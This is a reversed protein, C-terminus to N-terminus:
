GVSPVTGPPHAHWATWLDAPGSGQGVDMAIDFLRAAAEPELTGQVCDTFKDRVAAEPLPRPLSGRPMAVTATISRGNVLRVVVEDPDNPDLTLDPTMASRGAVLCRRLLALVTPRTLSEPSLSALDFRGDLLAAAVTYQASFMAEAGSEPYPYILLDLYFDPVSISVTDIDRPDVSNSEVVELAADIIRHTYSCSPYPKTILGHEVIALPSGLKALAAAFKGPHHEGMATAMSLPGDLTQGSASVGSGALQAALVGNMAALGAHVAKAGFGGQNTLGSAMSAALSLAHAARDQDLGTIRACAGAAAITGFTLTTHWGRKFHDLNMAEGLRLMIEVGVVYADLLALGAAGPRDPRDLSPPDASACALLAPFLVASPHSNAPIDYDDYDLAHAATGNVLAAFPPALRRDTGAISATGEGWPGCAELTGQTVPLYVGGLMCGLTDALAWRAATLAAPNAIRPCDAVFAAFRDVATGPARASNAGEAATM